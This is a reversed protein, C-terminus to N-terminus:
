KVEEFQVDEVNDNKTTDSANNDTHIEETNNETAQEKYLREAIPNFTENMSKMADRVKDIDKTKVEDLVKDIKENLSKIEDDSVKSKINEEELTKRLAYATSEARNIEQIENAKKEDAEKNAEAEDKIRQIEDDSLPKNEITIHQEKGTAQDKASVNLIGNADVTFTVDVKAQGRACPMLGTLNFQGILKNDKCMTREGQYVMISVETQGDTANTFTETKSIPITTNAEVMKAMIGGETEIGMSLPTVDLLLIDKANKGGVIQNAQICAGIAVATDPNVSKNLPRNFTKTLAEQVSPMRTSGGVLLFCDIDDVSVNAKEIAHRTIEIAKATLSETLEEFKARSISMTLMQPVNDVVTIYPESIETTASNSLEIKAKEAATIVRSYAMPDKRLDVGKDKKFEDCIYNVLANDYNQGGLFVDGYSALVEYMTQGDINSIEVISLDHTCGGLDFVAVIKDEKTDLNSALIAATPENIIRLVELGALEGALKTAQRQSDNFFAPCTIVAKKVEQGYYDEAVKKMAACIYSSIEEPSYLKNDIKVRPKGGENIVDYNIQKLMKQVDADTYEAGMFRKIFSVTNKPNMIQQRKASSGIQREGNKIMVVSPTTYEGNANVAIIPEGVENLVSVVSGSSGLDIGIVKNSM